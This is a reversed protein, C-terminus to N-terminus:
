IRFQYHNANQTMEACLYLEQDIGFMGTAELALEPKLKASFTTNHPPLFDNVFVNGRQDIDFVEKLTLEKKIRKKSLIFEKVAHSKVQVIYSRGFRTHPSTPSTSPGSAQRENTKNKTKRELSRIELIDGILEPVGLAGFVKESIMQPTNAIIAPIGSITLECTDRSVSPTDRVGAKIESIERLIETNVQSLQANAADLHAIRESHDKLLQTHHQISELKSSLDDNVLGQKAIFANLNANMSLRLERDVQKPGTSSPPAPSRSTFQSSSANSMSDTTPAPNLSLSDRVSSSVTAGSLNTICCPSTSRFLLYARCCAPHFKHTCAPCQM